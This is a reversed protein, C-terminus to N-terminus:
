GKANDVCFTKLITKLMVHDRDCKDVEKQIDAKFKAEDIEINKILVQIVTMLALTVEAEKQDDM